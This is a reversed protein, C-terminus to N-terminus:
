NILNKSILPKFVSCKYNSNLDTFGCNKAFSSIIFDLKSNNKYIKLENQKIDFLLSENFSKSASVMILTNNDRLLYYAFDEPFVPFDYKDLLKRARPPFWDYTILPRDENLSSNYIYLDQPYDNIYNSNEGKVIIAKNRTKFYLTFNNNYSVMKGIHFYDKLNFDKAYSFITMCIFIFILCIIKKM